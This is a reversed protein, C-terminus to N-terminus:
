PRVKGPTILLHKIITWLESTAGEKWVPEPNKPKVLQEQHSSKVQQAVSHATTGEM